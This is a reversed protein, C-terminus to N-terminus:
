DHKKELSVQKDDQWGDYLFGFMKVSTGITYEVWVYADDRKEIDVILGQKWLDPLNPFPAIYIPDDIKLM